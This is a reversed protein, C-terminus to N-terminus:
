RVKYYILLAASIFIVQLVNIQMHFSLSLNIVSLDLNVTDFGISDSWTLWKLFIIDQTLTGILASLVLASLLLFILILTNKTRM